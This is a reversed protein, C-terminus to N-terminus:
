GGARLDITPIGELSLGSGQLVISGAGMSVLTVVLPHTQRSRNLERSLILSGAQLSIGVLMVAVAFVQAKPIAVPYFYVFAGTVALFIGGWQILSPKESLWVMGLVAVMVASFSWLLNVTVAPLTALAVYSAGQTGAYFLLGLEILRAWVRGPLRKIEAKAKSFLLLFL